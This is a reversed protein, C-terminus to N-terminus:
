ETRTRCILQFSSKRVQYDAGGGKLAGGGPVCDDIRPALHILYRDERELITVEYSEWRALCRHVPDADPYQEVLQEAEAVLHSAAVFGARAADATLAKTPDPAALGADLAMSDASVSPAGSVATSGAGAETPAVATSGGDSTELSTHAADPICPPLAPVPFLLPRLLACSAGTIAILLVIAKLLHIRM